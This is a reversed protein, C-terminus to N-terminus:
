LNSNDKTPDWASPSWAVQRRAQALIVSTKLWKAHGDAFTVNVGGFHRGNECDPKGYTDTMNCAGGYVGQGPTYFNTGSSSVTWGASTRM